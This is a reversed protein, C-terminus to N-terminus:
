NSERFAVFKGNEDGLSMLLFVEPPLKSPSRVHAWFNIGAELDGRLTGSSLAGDAVEM